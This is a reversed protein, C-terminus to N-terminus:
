VGKCKGKLCVLPKINHVNVIHFKYKFEIKGFYREKRHISLMLKIRYKVCFKYIDESYNDLSCEFISPKYKKKCLIADEINSINMKISYNPYTSVFHDVVKKDKFWFFCKEQLNYKDLVSMFHDIDTEPKVDFYFYVKDYFKEIIEEVKPIKERLLGFSTKKILSIKDIESSTKRCFAGKADTTRELLGDHFNYYVKNRSPRVDIEIIDCGMDIANQISNLSGEPCIDPAGRHSSVFYKENSAFNVM